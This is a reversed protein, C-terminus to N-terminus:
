SPEQHTTQLVKGCARAAPQAKREDKPKYARANTCLKPDGHKRYFFQDVQSTTNSALSTLAHGQEDHGYGATTM